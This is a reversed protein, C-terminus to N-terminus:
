KKSRARGKSRKGGTESKLEQHEAIFRIMDEPVPAEIATPLGKIPHPFHIIHAHLLPRDTLHKAQKGYIKDGVVPHGIYSCHVRIQHTRGTRPYAEIYTYGDLRQLVKYATESERGGKQVVAMKKRHVPHRGISEEIVGENKQVIGEVIARYTKHVNREKFLDSLIEQTRSDKAVLIVGTTDKDLRHVIGPRVMPASNQTKLKSTQISSMEEIRWSEHGKSVGNKRNGIVWQRDGTKQLYGLIANVLTGESHGCSPHVVMGKPKNVALIFDDEFLIDLSIEQPMLSIPKEEPIKGEIVLGKKIRFSPKPTRGKISISGEEFIEKVKNRTISLKEALFIDLRKDQEDSLLRFRNEM